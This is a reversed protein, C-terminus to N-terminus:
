AIKEANVLFDAPGKSTFGGTRDFNWKNKDAQEKVMYAISHMTSENESDMVELYIPYLLTFTASKAINEKTCFEELKELSVPINACDALEMVSKDSFGLELIFPPQTSPDCHFLAYSLSSTQASVRREWIVFESNSSSSMAKIVNVFNVDDFDSVKKYLGEYAGHGQPVCCAGIDSFFVLFVDATFPGKDNTVISVKKLKDWRVEESGKHRSDVEVSRETINVRFDNEMCYLAYISELYDQQSFANKLLEEAQKIVDNIFNLKDQPDNPNGTENSM